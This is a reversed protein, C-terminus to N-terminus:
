LSRVQGDDMAVAGRCLGPSHIGLCQCGIGRLLVIMSLLDKTSPLCRGRHRADDCCQDRQIEVAPPAHAGTIGRCEFSAPGIGAGQLHIAIEVSPGSSPDAATVGADFGARCPHLGSRVAAGLRHLGPTSVCFVGPHRVGPPPLNQLLGHGPSRNNYPLEISSAHSFGNVSTVPSSQCASPRFGIRGSLFARM